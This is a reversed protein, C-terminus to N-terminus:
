RHNGSDDLQQLTGRNVATERRPISLQQLRAFRASQDLLGFKLLASKLRRGILTALRRWSSLFHTHRVILYRIWSGSLDLFFKRFMGVLLEGLTNILGGLRKCGPGLGFWVFARRQQVGHSINIFAAGVFQSFYNATLHAFGDLLSTSFQADDDINITVVRLVPWCIQCVL